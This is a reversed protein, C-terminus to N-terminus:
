RAREILAISSSDQVRDFIIETGDPSVDFDGIVFSSPLDTLQREAGTQPNLLWFNKHAIEGRLIVLSGSNAAFAVRRAGRTLILSAMGYPRGDPAAARLPFRMGVDAGSYVFYKGDPSWVPNLSYDSTMPQPAAGDLPIKSLNPEGDKVIAGIISQSDPTWALDGRLALTSSVLRANGGDGNIVHLQTTGHREVTFAIRRGDPAIAPAGVSDAEADNWLETPVGNALKWIGRRGGGTSMYAIFGPGFRPAVANQLAPIMPAASNPPPGSGDIRVSWLDSRSNAVTSVLRKGDASAALSLYRELGFSIRRERKLKLDMVYLWPGSGDADTALYILTRADLAVPYSLKTNHFTIQELGAGSPLLRWVDWHVPPEGRLFYIFQGDTSWIPFHCHIGPPAVYIQHPTSDERARVFLPDGPATTHFVLRKRDPSWDYEAAERLYVQLPGGATPAGVIKIDEPRSGDGARTWLTVLAGDPSFGVTRVSANTMDHIQGETLNRYRNSGVETLWADMRGDRNALFAVFRGDRSIAAAQETGAFDTLRTVKAEALPDRIGDSRQGVPGWLMFALTALVAALATASVGVMAKNRRLYKALRDTFRAPLAEIPKRDVYRRLDQAFSAVSQYRDVPRKALAKLVIADLDGRLERALKEPTTSRATIADPEHQASPKKVEVATIAQELAGISAAGRLKYPRVGTLMEYLLVGLSYIDSRADILDGHLLEPSAYDPTLARGYISTLPAADAEDVELLKAVGFDLLRVQRTETVLINSGKLDRHIVQKQHAYQVAELVQMFLELRAAITLRQADCWETLPQGQVYEMAFYPSSHPDVGADYFRAIYPHELSALIDRERAFRQELDGRLQNLMPLKLAVERKFAGDARRALWVEAMGGSGLPKILEYPGVRAGPQLHSARGAGAPDAFAAKAEASLPELGPAQAEDPLLADKLYQALERHEAPLAELWARRGDPDLPLAEDLLRSMAAMQAITLTM